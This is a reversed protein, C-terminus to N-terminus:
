VQLARGIEFVPEQIDERLKQIKEQRLSVLVATSAGASTELDIEEVNNKEIFKLGSYRTLEGAEYRVGKSGVPLIEHVYSLKNLNVVTVAHAIDNDDECYPVKVGSKPIGVCVIADGARTRALRLSAKTALGIVTVGIGTQKTLTNDETSGTLQISPDIGARELEQRIANIIKKGSPNMEVCLNNIVLVPVAGSAVVEMLPVKIASRGMESYPQKLYDMPKEGISANSDCSIVLMLDGILNILSLDRARSVLMKGQNQKVMRTLDQYNKLLEELMEENNIRKNKNKFNNNSIM